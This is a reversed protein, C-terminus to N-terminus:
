RAEKDEGGGGAEGAQRGALLLRQISHCTFLAGMLSTFRFMHHGKKGMIDESDMYQRQCSLGVDSHPKPHHGHCSPLDPPHVEM